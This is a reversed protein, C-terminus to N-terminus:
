GELEQALRDLARAYVELAAEDYLVFRIREVFQLRPAGEAVTRLAIDAAPEVPYGFAGTSIAPFAISRIKQEEARRLAERYCSALLQDAPEDRGYVPGLCHIVYPM